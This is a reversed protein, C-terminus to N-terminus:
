PELTAIVNNINFSYVRYATGHLQFYVGRLSPDRSLDTPSPLPPFSCKRRPNRALGRGYTM